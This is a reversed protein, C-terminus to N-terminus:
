QHVHESLLTEVASRLAPGDSPRFSEHVARIAGRRDILFTSPMANVGFRKACTENDGFAVPFTVHHRSLFQQADAPKQDMNVAVVQLGKAGLDRQLKEMFPFSAICAVCWSAWFDVYVVKGNLRSLSTKGQPLVIGCDPALRPATAAVCQSAVFFACGFLGAM